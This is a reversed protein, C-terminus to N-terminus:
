DIYNLLAADEQRNNSMKHPSVNSLADDGKFIDLLALLKKERNELKKELLSIEKEENAILSIIKAKSKAANLAEVQKQNLAMLEDKM